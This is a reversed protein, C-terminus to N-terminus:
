LVVETRDHHVIVPTGLILEAVHAVRVPDGSTWCDIRSRISEYSRPETEIQQQGLIRATQRAIAAGSDIVTISPGVVTEIVPRLAPFHTCALIVVDAGQALAPDFYRKIANIANPGELEGREVLEVMEPCAVLVVKTNNAYTDILEHTFDEHIARDTAALLVKGSRTLKVAPKIAPVVVVFPTEPYTARLIDRASVSATNCAVVIAKAGRNILWGAAALSLAQVEDEDRLGYPCNADDGFYIFREYPLAQLLERLITLGGIGSDFVGIPRNDFSGM